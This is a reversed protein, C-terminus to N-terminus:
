RPIRLSLNWKGSNCQCAHSTGCIAKVQFRTPRIKGDHLAWPTQISAPLAANGSACRTM